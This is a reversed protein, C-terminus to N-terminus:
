VAANLRSLDSKIQHGYVNKHPVYFVAFLKRWFNYLYVRFPLSGEPPTWRQYIFKLYFATRLDVHLAHALRIGSYYGDHMIDRLRSEVEAKSWQRGERNQIMCLYSVIVGGTNAFIDPIVIKGRLWLVFNGWFTTPGNAGEVIVPANIFWANWFTIVNEKACPALINVKMRWFRFMTARRVKWHQGITTEEFGRLSNHNSANAKFVLMATQLDPPTGLPFELVYPGQADREAIASVKAGAETFSRVTGWGVNGYGQVTVTKSQLSGESEAAAIAVGAGTAEPRFASGFNQPSKGTFAGLLSIYGVEPAEAHKRIVAQAYPLQTGDGSLRITRLFELRNLPIRDISVTGQDKLILFHHAIWQLRADAAVDMLNIHSPSTNADPAPVDIDIGTNIPHGAKIGEGLIAWVEGRMMRAYQGADFGRPDVAIGGKAGGLPLDVANVKVVMGLALATAEKIDVESGARIGGKSPKGLEQQMVVRYAEGKKPHDDDLYVGGILESDPNDHESWEAM